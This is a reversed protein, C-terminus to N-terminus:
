LRTTALKVGFGLFVGGSLYRIVRAARRSSLWTRFRQAMLIVVSFWTAVVTAQIAGLLLSDSVVRDLSVFQPFISLYFMIIKPNLMNTLFGKSFSRWLAEAGPRHREGKAQREDQASETVVLQRTHWGARISSLGLYILYLVGLYKFLMFAWSSQSLLLSLGHASVFAHVLFGCSVGLVNSWALARSETLATFLVLLANPGPIIAIMFVIGAFVVLTDISM